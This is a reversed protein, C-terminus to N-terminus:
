LVDLPWFAPLCGRTVTEWETVVQNVRKMGIGRSGGKISAKVWALPHDKKQASVKRLYGLREAITLIM